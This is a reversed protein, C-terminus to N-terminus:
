GILLVPTTIIVTHWNLLLTILSKVGDVLLFPTIVNIAKSNDGNFLEFRKYLMYALRAVISKPSHMTFDEYVLRVDANVINAAIIKTQPNLAGPLIWNWKVGNFFVVVGDTEM